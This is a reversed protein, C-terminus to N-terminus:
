PIAPAGLLTKAPASELIWLRALLGVCAAAFLYCAPAMSNGTVHILWTIFVQTPAGFVTISLAYIVAFASGRIPKPLSEALAAYFAGGGLSGVFALSITGVILAVASHANVIWFFVPLILVVYALNPWIM